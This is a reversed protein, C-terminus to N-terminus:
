AAVSTGARRRFLDFAHRTTAVAMLTVTAMLDVNPAARSLVTGPTDSDQVDKPLHALVGRLDGHALSSCAKWIAEAVKPDAGLRDAADEVINGYRPRQKIASPEVGVARALASLKEFHKSIDKGSPQGILERIKELDGVEAWEQRLRRAVRTPRDDTGLLWVARSSNELAGRILSPQGHLHLRATFHSPADPDPVLMSDRLCVLHDVAAIIAAWAASHVQFPETAADDAALESGPAVRGASPTGILTEWAPLVELTRVIQGLLRQEEPTM